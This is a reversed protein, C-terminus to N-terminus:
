PETVLVDAVRELEDSGAAADTLRGRDNAHGM